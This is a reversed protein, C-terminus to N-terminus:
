GLRVTVQQTSGALGTLDGFTLQLARGASPWALSSPSAIVSRVPRAWTVTLSTAQRTQDSVCLTATGDRASGPLPHARPEASSPM